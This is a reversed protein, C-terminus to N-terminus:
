THTYIYLENECIPYYDMVDIKDFLNKDVCIVKLDKFIKMEKKWLVCCLWFRMQSPYASSHKATTLM